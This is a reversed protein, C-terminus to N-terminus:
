VAAQLGELSGGRRRGRGWGGVCQLERLRKGTAAAQRRGLETLHREDDHVYQGHRVLVVVRSGKCRGAGEAPAACDWNADWACASVAVTGAGAGAAGLAAM